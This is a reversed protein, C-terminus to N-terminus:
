EKNGEERHFLDVFSDYSEKRGSVTHEENKEQKRERTTKGEYEM